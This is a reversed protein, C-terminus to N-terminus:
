LAILNALVEPEKFILKNKNMSRIIDASQGNLSLGWSKMKQDNTALNNGAITLFLIQKEHEVFVHFVNLNQGHQNKRKGIVNTEACVRGKELAARANERSVNTNLIGM